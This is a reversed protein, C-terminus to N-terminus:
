QNDSHENEHIFNMLISHNISLHADFTAQNSSNWVWRKSQVKDHYTIFQYTNGPDNLSNDKHYIELINEFLQKSQGHPLKFLFVPQNEQKFIRGDNLLTYRYEIGAFGGGHGFEIHPSKPQAPYQTKTCSTHLHMLLLLALMVLTTPISLFTSKKQLMQRFTTNFNVIIVCKCTEIM